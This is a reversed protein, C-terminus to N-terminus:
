ILLKVNVPMLCFLEDMIWNYIKFKMFIPGNWEIETCMKGM